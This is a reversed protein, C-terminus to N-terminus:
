RDKLSYKNYKECEKIHDADFRDVNWDMLESQAYPDFQEIKEM